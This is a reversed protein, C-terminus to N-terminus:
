HYMLSLLALVGCGSLWVVLRPHWLKALWGRRATFRLVLSVFIFALLGLVVLRPIYVDFLVVDQSLFTSM